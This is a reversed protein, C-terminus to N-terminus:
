PINTMSLTPRYSNLQRLSASGIYTLVKESKKVPYALGAM